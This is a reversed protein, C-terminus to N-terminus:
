QKKIKKIGFNAVKYTKQNIECCVLRFNYGPNNEAMNKLGTLGLTLSYVAHQGTKQWCKGCATFCDEKSGTDPSGFHDFSSFHWGTSDKHQIKYFKFVGDNRTM